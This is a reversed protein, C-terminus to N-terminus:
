HNAGRWAHVIVGIVKGQQAGFQNDPLLIFDQGLMVSFKLKTMQWLYQVLFINKKSMVCSTQELM